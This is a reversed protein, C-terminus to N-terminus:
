EIIINIEPPASYKIDYGGEKKTVEVSIDGFPSAVKGKAYSLHGLNPKIKVEKFGVGLPHVGLIETTFEYLPTSSWGHCESRALDTAEGWTTCNNNLMTIFGEFCSFADQYKGIKSLARFRFFGMSFSCKVTDPHMMIEAIKSAEKGTELESIIAWIATHQSFEKTNLCDNYYGKESNWFAKKISKNLSIRRAEYEEALGARGAEKALFSACKLGYSYQMSYVAIPDKKGGNPVGNEWTATWDTFCWYSSKVVGNEDLMMDFGWMLKDIVGMYQKVFEIDGSYTYYDHLLMLWYLSFTPIVQVFRSPYNALLFGNPLQSDALNSIIKKVLRTDNSIRLNYLSELYGDMGYQQQEFYPCDVFIEHTCCMLTNKSVEWMKNFNEDSCEFEATINLPYFYPLYEIELNLEGINECEVQIFRFARYWFFEIERTTETLEVYDSPGYIIKSTDDRKGKETNCLNEDGVFCEGYMLKLTDGTKGSAKIRIKATTYKGADLIFGNELKKIITFKEAPYTKMQPIPRPVLHLSTKTEGWPNSGYNDMYAERFEETTCPIKSINARYTEFFPMSLHLQNFSTFEIGEIKYVTIEKNSECVIENNQSIEFWVMPKEMPFVTTFQTESIHLVSIRIKNEGKKLFESISEEEYSREFASGQCPGELIMKENAFLQYRAAASVKIVVNETDTLNLTKEFSYFSTKDATESITVWKSSM